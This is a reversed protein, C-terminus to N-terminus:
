KFDGNNLPNFTQLEGEGIIDNEVAIRDEDDGEVDDDSGDGDDQHTPSPAAAATPLGPDGSFLESITSPDASLFMSDPALWFQSRSAPAHAAQRQLRALHKIRLDLCHKLKDIYIKM